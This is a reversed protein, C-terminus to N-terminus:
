FVVGSCIFINKVRSPKLELIIMVPSMCESPDAREPLADPRLATRRIRLVM